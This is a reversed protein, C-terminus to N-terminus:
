PLHKRVYTPDLHSVMFDQVLKIKRPPMTNWLIEHECIEPSYKFVHDKGLTSRFLARTGNKFAQPDRRLLNELYPIPEEYLFATPMFVGSWFANAFMFTVSDPKVGLQDFVWPLFVLDAGFKRTIETSRYMMTAELRGDGRISLVLNDMCFGMSQSRKPIGHMKMSLASFDHRERKAIAERFRTAEEENWYSRLLQKMKTPTYHLDEMTVTPFVAPKWTVNRVIKRM